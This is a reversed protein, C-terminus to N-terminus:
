FELVDFEDPALDAIQYEMGPSARSALPVPRLRSQVAARSIIYLLPRWRSIEARDLLVVLDEEAQGDISGAAREKLIRAKMSSKWHAINRNHWDPREVTAARLSELLEAPNSSPPLSAGLHLRQRRGDFCDACWVFHRHGFYDRQIEFKILPNTSYLFPSAM